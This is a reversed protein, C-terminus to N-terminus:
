NNLADDIVEQPITISNMENMDQYTQHIKMVLEHGEQIGSLENFVEKIILTEKDISIKTNQTVEDPSLLGFSLSYPSEFSAYLDTNKGQFTYVYSEENETLEGVKSISEVIPVIHPYTTGTSQFLEDQQSSMDIWGQDNLNLYAKDDVSYYQQTLTEGAASENITGYTDLTQENIVIDSKSMSEQIVEGSEKNTVSISLDILAHYNEVLSENEKVGSVVEESSLSKECGFLVFLSILSINLVSKRM